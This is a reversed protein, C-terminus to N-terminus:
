NNRYGMSLLIGTYELLILPDILKGVVSLKCVSDTDGFDNYIECVFMGADEPFAEPIILRHVNGSSTQKYLKDNKKIEKENRLWVVDIPSSGSTLCVCLM